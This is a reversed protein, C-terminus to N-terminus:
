FNCVTKNMILIVAFGFNLTIFFM